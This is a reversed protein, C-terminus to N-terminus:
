PATDSTPNTAPVVHINFYLEDNYGYFTQHRRFHLLTYGERLASFSFLFTTDYNYDSYRPVAEHDTSPDHSLLDKWLSYNNDSPFFTYDNDFCWTTIFDYAPANSYAPKHVQLASLNIKLTSGLPIQHEPGPLPFHPTLCGMDQSDGGEQTLTIVSSTGPVSLTESPSTQALSSHAIFFAVISFFLSLLNLKFPHM